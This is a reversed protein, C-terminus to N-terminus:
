FLDARLHPPWIKITMPSIRWAKLKKDIDDPMFLEVLHGVASSIIYQDNEYFDGNKKLGGLARALDTAVSPKEAVILTKLENDM